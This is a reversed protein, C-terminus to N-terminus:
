HASGSGTFVVQGYDAVDPLAGRNRACLHDLTQQWARPPSLVESLTHQGPAAQSM